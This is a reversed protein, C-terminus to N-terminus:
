AMPGIMDTSFRRNEFENKGKRKVTVIFTVPDIASHIVGIKEIDAIEKGDLDVCVGADNFEGVLAVKKGVSFPNEAAPQAASAQQQIKKDAFDFIRAVIEDVNLPVAEPTTASAPAPAAAPAAAEAAAAQQMMPQQMMPQQMMPPPPLMPQPPVPMPATATAPVYGAKAAKRAAVIKTVANHAANEGAYIVGAAATAAIISLIM